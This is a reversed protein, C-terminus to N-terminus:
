FNCINGSLGWWNTGSTNVEILCNTPTRKLTARLGYRQASADPSHYRINNTIQTSMSSIKLYSNLPTTVLTDSILKDAVTPYFGNDSYYMELATRLQRVTQIIAADSGKDRASNLSALVVSSLVGIIAVVVLLEILTFGKNLM